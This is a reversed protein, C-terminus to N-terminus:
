NNLENFLTLQERSMLPLAIEKLKDIYTEIKDRIRPDMLPEIHRVWKDNVTYLLSRTERTLFPDIVGSLFGM